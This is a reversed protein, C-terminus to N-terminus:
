LERCAYSFFFFFESIDYAVNIDTEAMLSTSNKACSIYIIHRVRPPSQWVAAVYTPVDVVQLMSGTQTVSFARSIHCYDVTIHQM